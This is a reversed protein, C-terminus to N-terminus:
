IPITPPMLDSHRARDGRFGGEPIETATLLGKTTLARLTKWDKAPAIFGDTGAEAAARLRETQLPTLKTM